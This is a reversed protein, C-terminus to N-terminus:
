CHTVSHMPAIREVSTGYNRLRSPIGAVDVRTGDSNGLFRRNTYAVEDAIQSQNLGAKKLGSIQYRQESTLQKYHKM